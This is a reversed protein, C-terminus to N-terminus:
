INKKLFNTMQNIRNKVSATGSTGAEVYQYFNDSVLFAGLKKRFKKIDKIKIDSPTLKLKSIAISEADFIANNFKSLVSLNKDFLKFAYKGFLKKSAHTMNLFDEKHQNIWNQNPNKNNELYDNLFTIFPKKYKSINDSLAFFRLILEEGKKRKNSKTGTLEVWTTHNSLKDLLKIFAGYHVGHRLEQDSLKVSGTNLRQFVDFKIQPHSNRQIVICRITRKNIHRKIRPDLNSYYSGELEPYVDLNKLAFGDSLFLKLSNLRQNGDIVLLTEDPEQSLYVVPIPCQIILSEILRSAQTRTWVYGRQFQPIKIDGDNMNNVLTQVTFDYMETHLQREKPPINLIEIETVKDPFLKDALEKSESM